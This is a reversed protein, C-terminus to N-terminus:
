STSLRRYAELVQEPAGDEVLHGHDLLIARDCMEAIAGLDHTVIVITKGSARFADMRELCKARFAADGVALIEDLLLVDPDVHAAISFALRVYMGSSYHKVPTELFDGVGSFDVIAPLRATIEARSLGLLAGYLYVNRRGSLEPSFGAGLELLPTVRGQVRVIGSDPELIGALIRLLTSKGAGNEGLLCYIQGPAFAATVDRLAAM